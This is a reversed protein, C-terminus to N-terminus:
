GAVQRDLELVCYSSPLLHVYSCRRCDRCDGQKKGNAALLSFFGFKRGRQLIGGAINGGLNKV